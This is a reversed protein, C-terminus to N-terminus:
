DEYFFEHQLEEIIEELSTYPSNKGTPYVRDAHSPCDSLEGKSVTERHGFKLVQVDSEGREIVQVQLSLDVSTFDVREGPRAPSPATSSRGLVGNPPGVNVTVSQYMYEVDTM